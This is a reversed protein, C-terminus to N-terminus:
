VNNTDRTDHCQISDKYATPPQDPTPGCQGASVPPPPSTMPVCSTYSLPTQCKLSYTHTDTLYLIVLSIVAFHLRTAPVGRHDSLQYPFHRILVGDPGGSDASQSVAISCVGKATM